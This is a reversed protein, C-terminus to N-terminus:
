LLHQVGSTLICQTCSCALRLVFTSAVVSAPRVEVVDCPHLIDSRTPPVRVTISSGDDSASADLAMRSLLDAVVPAALQVGVFRNIYSLEVELVRTDLVPTM